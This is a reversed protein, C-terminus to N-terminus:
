LTSAPIEDRMARAILRSGVVVAFGVAVVILALRVPKRWTDIQETMVDFSDTRVEFTDPQSDASQREQATALSIDDAETRFAERGATNEDHSTSM